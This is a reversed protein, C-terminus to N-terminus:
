NLCILIRHGPAGRFCGDRPSGSDGAFRTILPPDFTIRAIPLRTPVAAYALCGAFQNFRSSSLIRHWAAHNHSTQLENTQLYVRLFSPSRFFGRVGLSGFICLAADELSLFSDSFLLAITATKCSDNLKVTNTGRTHLSGDHPGPYLNGTLLAEGRSSPAPGAGPSNTGPASARKHKSHLLLLSIVQFWASRILLLM